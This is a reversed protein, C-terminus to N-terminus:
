ASSGQCGIVPWAVSHCERQRRASPVDSCAVQQVFEADVQHELRIALCGQVDDGRLPPGAESPESTLRPASVERRRESPREGYPTASSLPLSATLSEVM